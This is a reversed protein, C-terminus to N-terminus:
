GLQLMLELREGSREVVRRGLGLDADRLRLEDTPQLPEELADLGGHEGLLHFSLGAALERLHPLTAQRGAGAPGLAGAGALVESVAGRFRTPERRLEIRKQHTRSKRTWPASRTKRIRSAARWSAGVALTSPAVSSVPTRASRTVALPPTARASRPAAIRVPGITSSVRLLRPRRANVTKRVVNATVLATSAVANRRTSVISM